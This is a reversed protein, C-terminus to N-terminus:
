ASATHRVNFRESIEQMATRLQDFGGSRAFIALYALAVQGPAFGAEQLGETLVKRNSSCPSRDVVGSLPPRCHPM